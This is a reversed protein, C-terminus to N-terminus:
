DCVCLRPETLLPACMINFLWNSSTKSPSTRQLQDKTPPLSILKMLRTATYLDLPMVMLYPVHLWRRGVFRIDEKSYVALTEKHLETCARFIRIAIEGRNAAMV